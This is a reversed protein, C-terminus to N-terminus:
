NYKYNKNMSWSTLLNNNYQVINIILENFNFKKYFFFTIFYYLYFDNNM